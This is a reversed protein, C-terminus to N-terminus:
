GRSQRGNGSKLDRELREIEAMEARTIGHAMVNRALAMVNLIAYVFLITLIVFFTKDAARVLHTAVARYAVLGIVLGVDVGINVMFPVFFVRVGKPNARLQLMYSDSLFAIVLAFAAFVVGLLAAVISLYDGAISLRDAVRTVRELYIGGAGGPLIAVIGEIGILQWTTLHGIAYWFGFKRRDLPTTMQNRGM